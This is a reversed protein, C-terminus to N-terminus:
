LKIKTQVKKWQIVYNVIQSYKITIIKEGQNQYKLRGWGDLKVNMLIKMNSADDLYYIRYLSSTNGLRELRLVKVFPISSPISTKNDPTERGGKVLNRDVIFGKGEKNIIGINDGNPKFDTARVLGLTDLEFLSVSSALARTANLMGGRSWKLYDNNWDSTYILTAKVKDSSTEGMSNYLEAAVASVLPAAFSTGSSLAYANDATAGYLDVGPALLDVYLMGSNYAPQTKDNDLFPLSGDLKVAGVVLVNPIEQTWAVPIPVTAGPTNLNIHDNGAATVLLLNYYPPLNGFDKISISDAIWDKLLCYSPNNKGDSPCAFEQSINFVYVRNNMAAKMFKDFSCSFGTENTDYLFIGLGPSVGPVKNYTSAMLDVVFTGHDNTKSFTDKVSRESINKEAAELRYLNEIDPNFQNSCVPVDDGPKLTKLNQGIPPPQRWVYDWRIDTNNGASEGGAGGEPTASGSDQGDGVDGDSELPDAHNPWEFDPHWFSISERKEFLGINIDPLVAGADIQAPPRHFSELLLKRNEAVTNLDAAVARPASGGAASNPISAPVGREGSSASASKVILSLNDENNGAFARLPSADGDVLNVDVLMDLRWRPVPLLVKGQTLAFMDQAGGKKVLYPELAKLPLVRRSSKSSKTANDDEDNQAAAPVPKISEPNSARYGVTFPQKVVISWDGVPDVQGALHLTEILKQSETPSLPLGNEKILRYHAGAAQLVSPIFYVGSDAPAPACPLVAQSNLGVEQLGDFSVEVRTIKFEELKSRSQSTAEANAARPLVDDSPMRLTLLKPFNSPPRSSVKVPDPPAACTGPLQQETSGTVRILTGPLLLNTDGVVSDVTMVYARRTLEYELTNLFTPNIRMLYESPFSTGPFREDLISKVSRGSLLVEGISRESKVYFDPLLLGQGTGVKKTLLDAGTRAQLAACDWQNRKCFWTSLGELASQLKSKKEQSILPSPQAPDYPLPLLIGENVLSAGLSTFSNDQTQQATYERFPVLGKADLWSYFNLITANAEERPWTFYMKVSKLQWGDVVRRTSDALFCVDGRAALRVPTKLADNKVTPLDHRQILITTRTAVFTATLDAALLSAGDAFLLHDGIIAFDGQRARRNGVVIPTTFGCIINGGFSMGCGEPISDSPSGSADGPKARPRIRILRGQPDPACALLDQGDFLLRSLASINFMLELPKHEQATTDILLVKAPSQQGVALLGGDSVALSIIEGTASPRFFESTTGTALDAVFVVNSERDAIYLNNGSVALAGPRRPVSTGTLVVPTFDSFPVSATPLGAAARYHYIGGAADDSVYVDAEGGPKVSVAIDRAQELGHDTITAAVAFTSVLATLCALLCPSLLRARTRQSPM